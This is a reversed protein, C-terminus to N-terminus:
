ERRLTVFRTDLGVALKLRAAEPFMRFDRVNVATQWSFQAHVTVGFVTEDARAVDTALKRCDVCSPLMSRSQRPHCLAVFDDTERTEKSDRPPEETVSCM